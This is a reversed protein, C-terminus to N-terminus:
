PTRPDHNSNAHYKNGMWGAIYGPVGPKDVDEEGHRPMAAGAGDHRGGVIGL